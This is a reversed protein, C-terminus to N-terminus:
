RAREMRELTEVRALLELVAAEVPTMPPPPAIRQQRESATM